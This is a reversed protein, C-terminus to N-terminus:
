DDTMTGAIAKDQMMWYTERDKGKFETAEYRKFVVRSGPKPAHALVTEDYNFAAPSMAVIVGEMQGFQEKEQTDQPIYLGGATQEQVKNPLVLVNFGVPEIGSLNIM